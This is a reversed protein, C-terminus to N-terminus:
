KGHFVPARKEVFARLGENRDDSRLVIEYSRRERELGDALPVGIGDDIASKAVAVALPGCAAIEEVLRDVAPALEGAPLVESVLGYARAAAADFRRGTLILEKARSVGVLRALRQTGGAGPIIGLRGEVLGLAAGDVVVRIDCALALELGGGFAAGNIAAIVPCPLAALATLTGGLEDLFTRTEDLTMTSREKLDAGACFARGAGTVVVARVPAADRKPDPFTRAVAIALDAVLTRSLANAAEPRSLVIWAAEGRREVTVLPKPIEGTALTVVIVTDRLGARDATQPVPHGGRGSDSRM